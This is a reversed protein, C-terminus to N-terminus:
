LFAFGPPRRSVSFTNCLVPNGIVRQGLNQQSMKLYQANNQCDRMLECIHRHVHVFLTTIGRLSGAATYQYTQFKSKCCNSRSRRRTDWRPPAQSRRSAAAPVAALAPVTCRCTQVNTVDSSMILPSNQAKNVDAQCNRITTLIKIVENSM